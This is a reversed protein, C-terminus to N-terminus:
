ITPATESPFGRSGACIKKITNVHVGYRAAIEKQLLGQARLAFVERVQEDSIKVKRGARAVNIKGTVVELHDPNCCARNRCLHDVQLGRPIPEVLMEYVTRHVSVMGQGRGPRAVKGYGKHKHGM